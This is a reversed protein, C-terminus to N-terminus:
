SEPEMVACSLNECVLALADANIDDGGDSFESLLGYATHGVAGLCHGMEHAITRAVNTSASSIELGACRSYQRTEANSYVLARGNVPKGERDRMDALLTVPLGGEGVRVDCGTAASWRAAASEAADRLEPVPSFVFGCTPAPEPAGATEPASVEDHQAPSGCCTLPFVLALLITRVGPSQCAAPSLAFAGFRHCGPAIM